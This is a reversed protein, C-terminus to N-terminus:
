LASGINANVALDGLKKARATEIEVLWVESKESDTILFALYKEDSSRTFNSFRGTLPLGSVQRPEKEQTTKVKINNYFRTRSGINTKPNIRLGALRLETESLEAISKFQDRYFLIVNEGKSDIQVSPALPVDVLKRINEHPTQYTPNEQAFSTFCLCIAVVAFISKLNM